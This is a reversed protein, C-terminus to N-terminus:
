RKKVSVISGEVDLNVEELYNSKLWLFAYIILLIAAFIIGLTLKVEKPIEVFILLLSLGVSIWSTFELFQKIIRNDLLNVKVL